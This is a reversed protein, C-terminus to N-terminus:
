NEFRIDIVGLAMMDNACFVAGIDPNSAFMKQSVAYGEDINCNGTEKSIITINKNENFAKLAGTKRQEANAVGRIGEIIAVKTPKIIMDSIYKVSLYAGMENDVSIFPVNLLGLKKSLDPDLQNDINVIPIKADQAIKLVPILETSSGPAIVIASVKSDILQEVIAIQQEM